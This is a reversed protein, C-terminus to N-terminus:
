AIMAERLMWDSFSDAPHLAALQRGVEGPKDSSLKLHGAHQRYYHEWYAWDVGSRKPLIEAYNRIDGLKEKLETMTLEFECDIYGESNYEPFEGRRRKILIDDIVISDVLVQVVGRGIKRINLLAISAMDSDFLHGDLHLRRYLFDFRNGEKLLYACKEDIKQAAEREVYWNVCITAAVDYGAARAAEIGVNANDAVLRHDFWEAGDVLRMLTDDNRIYEAKITFPLDTRSSHILFLDGLARWSELCPQAIRWYGFRNLDGIPCIIAIKM